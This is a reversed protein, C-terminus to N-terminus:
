VQRQEGPNRAGTHGLYTPNSLLGLGLSPAHPTMKRAPGRFKEETAVVKLPSRVTTAQGAEPRALDAM